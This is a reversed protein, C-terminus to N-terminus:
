TQEREDYNGTAYWAHRVAMAYAAFSSDTLTLVVRDPSRKAANRFWDWSLEISNPTRVDSHPPTISFYSAVLDTFM